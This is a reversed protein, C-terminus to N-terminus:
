AGAILTEIVRVFVIDVFDGLPEGAHRGVVVDVAPLVLLEQARAFEGEFEAVVVDLQGDGGVVDDGGGAFQLVGVAHQRGGLAVAQALGVARGLRDDDHGLGFRLVRFFRAAGGGLGPVELCLVHAIKRPGGAAFEDPIRLAVLLVAGVGQGHGVIWFLAVRQPLLVRGLGDDVGDFLVVLVGEVIGVRDGNGDVTGHAAHFVGHNGKVTGTGGLVLLGSLHGIRLLRFVAQDAHDDM